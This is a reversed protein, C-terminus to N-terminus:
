AGLRADQPEFLFVQSDFLLVKAHDIEDAITAQLTSRMPGVWGCICASRFWWADDHAHATIHETVVDVKRWSLAM